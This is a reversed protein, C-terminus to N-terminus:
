SGSAAAARSEAPGRLSIGEGLELNGTLDYSKFEKKLISKTELLLEGKGKVAGGQIAKIRGDQIRLILGELKLEGNLTFKLKLEPIPEGRYTVQLYPEHKVSVTHEALSVLNTEGAPHKEPDAFELIERCKKWAPALFTLLPIDLAEVTKDFIVDQVASWKILKSKKSLEEKVKAAAQTNVVEERKASDTKAPVDGGNQVEFLDKMSLNTKSM